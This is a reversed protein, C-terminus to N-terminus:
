ARLPAPNLLNEENANAHASKIVALMARECVTSTATPPLV